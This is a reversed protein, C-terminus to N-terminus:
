SQGEYSATLSFTTGVINATDAIERIEIEGTVTGTKFGGFQTGTMTLWHNRDFTAITHWLEDGVSSNWVAQGKATEDVNFIRYEYDTSDVTPKSDDHIWQNTRPTYVTRRRTNFDGDLDIRFGVTAFDNWGGFMSESVSTLLLGRDVGRFLSPFPFM